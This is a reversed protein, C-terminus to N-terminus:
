KLGEKRFSRVAADVDSYLNVLLGENRIVLNAKPRLSEINQEVRHLDASDFSARDAYRGKGNIHDWRQETACDVYILRFHSGFTRSLSDYDTPQRLGDIAVDKGPTVKAILRQNLESQMSCAVDWGIEQLQSKSHSGPLRWEELVASYRLYQFGYKSEFYKGVTTKGSGIRGTIGIVLREPQRQPQTGM